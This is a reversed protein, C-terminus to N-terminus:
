KTSLYALPLLGLLGGGLRSCIMSILVLIIYLLNKYRNRKSLLIIGIVLQTLIAGYTGLVVGSNFGSSFSDGRGFVAGLTAGIVINLLLFALYFGVAEKGKRKYDFDLLKKFM